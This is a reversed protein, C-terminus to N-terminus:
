TWEEDHPVFEERSSIFGNELDSFMQQELEIGRWFKLRENLAQPTLVEGYGNLDVERVFFPPNPSSLYERSLQRLFLREIEWQSGFIEVDRISTQTSGANRIESIGASCMKRLVSIQEATLQPKPIVLIM